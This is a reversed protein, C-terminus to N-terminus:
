QKEKRRKVRKVCVATAVTAVLITSALGIYSAALDPKPKAILVSYGGVPVPSTVTLINFDIQGALDIADVYYDGPIASPITFTTEFTGYSDTMVSTISTLEFFLTVTTNPTFFSGYANIVEGPYGTLKSLSLTPANTLRCEQMVTTDQFGPLSPDVSVAGYYFINSIPPLPFEVEIINSIDTPLYEVGPRPEADLWSYRIMIALNSALTKNTVADILNASWNGYLKRIVLMVDIGNLPGLSVGTTNLGDTNFGVYYYMETENVVLDSHLEFYSGDYKPFIGDITGFHWDLGSIGGPRPAHPNLVRTNGCNHTRAGGEEANNAQNGRNKANKTMNDANAKTLKSDPSTHDFRYWNLYEKDNNDVKGDGNADNDNPNATPSAGHPVGLGHIVEHALTFNDFHEFFSVPTGVWTAGNAGMSSGNDYLIHKVLFIKYGKGPIDNKLADHTLNQMNKVTVDGVQGVSTDPDAVTKTKITGKNDLEPTLQVHYQFLQKNADNIRTKLDAPVTAGQVVNIKLPIETYSEAFVRDTFSAM